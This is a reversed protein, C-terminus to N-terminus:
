LALCFSVPNARTGDAGFGAIKLKFRSRTLSSDPKSVSIVTRLYVEYDM